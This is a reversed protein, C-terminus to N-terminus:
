GTHVAKQSMIYGTRAAENRHEHWSANFKSLCNAGAPLIMCHEEQSHNPLCSVQTVALAPNAQHMADSSM